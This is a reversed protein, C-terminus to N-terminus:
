IPGGTHLGEDDCLSTEDIFLIEARVSSRERTCHCRKAFVRSPADGGLLLGHPVRKLACPTAAGDCPDRVGGRRETSRPNTSLKNENDAKNSSPPELHLM